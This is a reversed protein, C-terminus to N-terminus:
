VNKNSGDNSNVYIIQRNHRDTTIKVHSGYAMSLMEGTLLDKSPGQFINKNILMITSAHQAILNLLHSVIIITLGQKNLNDIIHMISSEAVIDMGNTPEDLVLIQPDTALARAILTRQKQGGSLERYLHHAIDFIEVKKLSNDVAERDKQRPRGFLGMLPYRAMTVIDKVSLPFLEDLVEQQPVYGFRINEHVSIKGSFPKLIGLLAKLVTTKGAGNPGVIGLFDGNHIALDLPPLVPKGGYGLVVDKFELQKSM